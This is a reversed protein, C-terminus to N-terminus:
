TPLSTPRQAQGCPRMSRSITALALSPSRTTRSFDPSGDIKPRAQSSIAAARAAPDSILPVALAPFGAQWALKGWAQPGAALACALAALTVFRLRM